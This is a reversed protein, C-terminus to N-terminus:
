PDFGQGLRSELHLERRTRLQLRLEFSRTVQHAMAVRVALERDHDVRRDVEEDRLELLLAESLHRGRPLARRSSCTRGRRRVPRARNGRGHPTRDELAVALPARKGVSRALATRLAPMELQIVDVRSRESARVCRRVKADTAARVVTERRLVDEALRVDRLADVQTL